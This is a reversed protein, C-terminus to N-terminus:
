NKVLIKRTLSFDSGTLRVFYIGTKVNTLGIEIQNKTIQFSRVDQGYANYIIITGSFLLGTPSIVKISNGDYVINYKEFGFQAIENTQSVSDGALISQFPMSNYAYDKYTIVKGDSEVRLWGYYKIQNIEIQLGVYFEYQPDSHVVFRGITNPACIDFSCYGTRTLVAKLDTWIASSNISDNFLYVKVSKGFFSSPYVSVTSLFFSSVDHSIFYGGSCACSDYGANVLFSFDFRGDQNLDLFLANGNVSDSRDPIIDTYIIQSSASNFFAAAFLTIIVSRYISKRM